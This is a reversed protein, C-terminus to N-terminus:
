SVSSVAALGYQVRLENHDQQNKMLEDISEIPRLRDLPQHLSVFHDKYYAEVRKMHTNTLSTEEFGVDQPRRHSEPPSFSGTRDSNHLTSLM